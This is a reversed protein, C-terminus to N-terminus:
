RRNKELEELMEKCAARIEDMSESTLILYFSGEIQEKAEKFIAEILLVYEEGTYKSITMTMIESMLGNVLTPISPIILRRSMISLAGVYSAIVISGIEKITSMGMETFLGKKINESQSYHCMDILKFASKENLIFLVQGKLGTLINSFVCIMLQEESVKNLIDECPIIDLNPMRLEITRGLIESLAISGHAASIKGVERLIDMEDKM